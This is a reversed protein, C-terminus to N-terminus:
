LCRQIWLQFLGARVRVTAGRGDDLAMSPHAAAALAVFSFAIIIVRARTLIGLRAYHTDLYAISPAFMDFLKM